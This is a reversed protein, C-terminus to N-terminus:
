RFLNINEKILRQREARNTVAMIQEKTMGSAGGTKPTEGKLAEKVAKGVEAQFLSIFSDVSAKTTDADESILMSLLQDSVNIGKEQLMGRASRSMQSLTEKKMLEEVKKELQEREYDAKQQENMEKLKEAESKKKKEKEQKKEWEAFKRNIINNVDEDTYKKEGPKPEPAPEPAPNGPEPNPEPDDAFMQLNMRLLSSQNYYSNKNQM